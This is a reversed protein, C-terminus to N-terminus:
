CSYIASPFAGLQILVMCDLLRGGIYFFFTDKGEQVRDPSSRSRM